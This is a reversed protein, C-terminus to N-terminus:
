NGGTGPQRAKRKQLGLKRRAEELEPDSLYGAEHRKLYPELDDPARKYLWYSILLMALAELPSSWMTSLLRLGEAVSGLLGGACYPILRVTGILDALLMVAGPVPWLPGTFVRFKKLRDVGDLLIFIFQILMGVTFLNSTTYCIRAMEEVDELGTSNQLAWLFVFRLVMLLGMTLILRFQLFDKKHRLLVFAILFYCVAMLVMIPNRMLLQLIGCVAFLVAALLIPINKKLSKM